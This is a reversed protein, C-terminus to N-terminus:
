RRVLERVIGTTAAALGATLAAFVVTISYLVVGPLDFVAGVTDALRHIPGRTATWGLLLMWSLAAAAAAIKAPSRRAPVALGWVAGLAPAAWWGAIITTLGFAGSLMLFAFFRRM